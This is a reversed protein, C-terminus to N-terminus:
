PDRKPDLAPLGLTRYMDRLVKYEWDQSSVQLKNKLVRVVEVTYSPAGDASAM